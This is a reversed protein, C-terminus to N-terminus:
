DDPGQREPHYMDYIFAPPSYCFCCVPLGDCRLSGDALMVGFSGAARLCLWTLADHHHCRSAIYRVLSIILLLLM